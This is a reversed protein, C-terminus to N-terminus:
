TVIGASGVTGAAVSRSSGGPGATDEGGRVRGIGLEREARGDGRCVEARVAGVASGTCRVGVGLGAVDVGDCGRGRLVLLGGCVRIAEVVGAGGGDDM